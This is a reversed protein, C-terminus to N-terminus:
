ADKRALSAVVAALEAPQVPKPVHMQFGARLLKVRDHASAYATLAVAPTQGGKEAPLLRLGRLLDYGNQEPMEVDSLVVDPRETPVSALAERASAAVVVTAGCRELVAKMVDRADAHDDVVLVRVGGLSPAHELWLPQEVPLRDRAAEGAAVARSVTQRPLQVTFVAGRRGPLNAARVAGGHLEVLQRVLALGLGLGQSRRNAGTVEQRFRDFVHPLFAADIGPGNDEVTIRLHEGRGELRVVVRGTKEPVFKIANSVLNWAVQQLRNADGSVAEADRDFSAELRVGRADAAPRLTDLAAEIVARLDVPHVELRMKGAAIRSIDLIDSILRAQVQANRHITEAAKRVTADDATGDRLIHSWGVIANLPTRLEHSLVALFDDKRHDAEVASRYLVANEIAVAARQALDEAVGLDTPDYRRQPRGVVFMLVAQTQGRWVVPVCLYSAFGLELLVRRHEEESVWSLRGEGVDEVIESRGNAAVWGPGGRDNPGPLWRHAVRHALESKHPEDHAVAIRELAGSEDLIDATCWDAFFPVSLSAVKSLITRSDSLDTLVVSANAIFRAVQQARRLALEARKRDTIDRAIKSAGVIAGSASRIPSITLSVEIARGGKAIRVTEFHDVREGGRIRELIRTEEDRREPPILITIPQGVLEAAPYGFIREAAANCSQIIGDLNKSLIADDSSEVIAALHGLAEETRRLRSWFSVAESTPASAHL